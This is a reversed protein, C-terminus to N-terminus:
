KKDPEIWWKPLKGYKELVKNKLDQRETTITQMKNDLEKFETVLENDRKKDGAMVSPLNQVREGKISEKRQNADAIQKNLSELQEKFVKEQDDVAYLKYPLTLSALIVVYIFIKKM